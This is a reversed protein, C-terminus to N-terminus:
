WFSRFFYNPFLCFTNVTGKYIAYIKYEFDQTIIIKM